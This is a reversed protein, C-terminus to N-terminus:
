KVNIIIKGKNMAYDYAVKIGSKPQYDTLDSKSNRRRPPLYNEDYYVVCFKSHNIMEQNREMYSARGSNKIQELYYTDEYHKILSDEYFVTDEDELVLHMIENGKKSLVVFDYLHYNKWGFARQLVKHLETFKIDSSVIIRREAKYVDLDLAVLLEYTQYKYMPLGTLVSLEEFM